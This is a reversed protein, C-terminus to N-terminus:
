LCIMEQMDVSLKWINEIIKEKNKEYDERSICLKSEKETGPGPGVLIPVSIVVKDGAEYITASWEKRYTHQERYIQDCLNRRNSFTKLKMITKNNITM